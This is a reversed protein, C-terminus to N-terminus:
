FSPAPVRRRVALLLGPWTKQKAWGVLANYYRHYEVVVRAVRYLLQAAEVVDNTYEKPLQDMMIISDMNNTTLLQPYRALVCCWRPLKRGTEQRAPGFVLSRGIGQDWWALLCRIDKRIRIAGRPAGKV